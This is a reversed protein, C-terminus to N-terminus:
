IRLEDGWIPCYATIKMIGKLLFLKRQCGPVTFPITRPINEGTGYLTRHEQDEFIMGAMLNLSHDGFQKAYTLTNNWTTNTRNNHTRGVSNVDQRYIRRYLLGTSGTTRM